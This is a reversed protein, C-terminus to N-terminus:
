VRPEGPLPPDGNPGGPKPSRAALPHASSALSENLYDAAGRVIDRAVLPPRDPPAQDSALDPREADLAWRVLEQAARRGAKRSRADADEM